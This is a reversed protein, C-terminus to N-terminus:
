GSAVPRGNSGIKFPRGLQPCAAVGGAIALATPFAVTVDELVAGTPGRAQVTVQDGLGLPSRLPHKSEASSSALALVAWGQVVGMEDVAGSESRARVSAVGSGVEAVVVELSGASSAEIRQAALVQVPHGSSIGFPVELTAVLDPADVEIVLERRSAPLCRPQAGSARDAQGGRGATATPLLKDIGLTGTTIAEFVRLTVGDHSRVFLPVLGTAIGLPSRAGSPVGCVILLCQTPPSAPSGPRGSPGTVSANSGPGVGVNAASPSVALWHLGPPPSGDTM